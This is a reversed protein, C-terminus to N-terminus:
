SGGRQSFRTAVTHALGIVHTPGVIGAGPFVGIGDPTDAVIMWATATPLEARVMEDLDATGGVRQYVNWMKPGPVVELHRINMPHRIIYDGTGAYSSLGFRYEFPIELITAGDRVVANLGLIAGLDPMNDETVEYAFPPLDEYRARVAIPAVASPEDTNM